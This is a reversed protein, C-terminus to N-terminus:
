FEGLKTRLITFIGYMSSNVLMQGQFVIVCNQLNKCVLVMTRMHSSCRRRMKEFLESLGLFFCCVLQILFKNTSGSSVRQYVNVYRVPCDGTKIALDVIFWGNEMAFGGIACFLMLNGWIASIRSLWLLIHHWIRTPKLRKKFTSFEM